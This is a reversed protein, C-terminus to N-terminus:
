IEAFGALRLLCVPLSCPSTFSVLRLSWGCRRGDLGNWGDEHMRDQELPIVTKGGFSTSLLERGGLLWRLCFNLSNLGVLGGWISNVGFSSFLVATRHWWGAKELVRAWGIKSNETDGKEM